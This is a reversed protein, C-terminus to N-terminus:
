RPRQVSPRVKKWPEFDYSRLPDEGRLFRELFPLDDFGWFLQDDTVMTPVGFVGISVADQTAQRLRQKIEPRESRAVLTPGDLGVENAVEAVVAGDSVDRSDAWTARFLADILEHRKAAWDSPATGRPSAEAPVPEVSGLEGPALTAVRLSTLPHFPHSAPPALPIGLELAKRVVDRIMWRGKAPIEAPGLQGGAKLLGAFLVPIPELPRGHRHALETIQAWALYANHSIFDFYFRLPDPAAM